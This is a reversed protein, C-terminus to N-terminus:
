SSDVISLRRFGKFEKLLCPALSEHFISFGVNLAKVLWIGFPTHSGCPDLQRPAKHKEGASYDTLWKYEIAMMM